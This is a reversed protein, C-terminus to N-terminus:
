TQEESVAYQPRFTPIMDCLHQLVARTDSQVAPQELVALYQALVESEPLEGGRVKFIQPVESPEITEDMGVLEESLKEGPRLGTFVIPIEEDPVFGSLHILHRAMDLVKIQEGM